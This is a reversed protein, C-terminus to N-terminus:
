GWISFGNAAVQPFQARTNILGGSWGLRCTVGHGQSGYVLTREVGILFSFVCTRVCAQLRANDGKKIVVSYFPIRFSLFLHPFLFVFLLLYSPPAYITWSTIEPRFIYLRVSGAHNRQWTGQVWTETTFKSGGSKVRLGLNNALPRYGNGNWPSIREKGREKTRKKKEKGM